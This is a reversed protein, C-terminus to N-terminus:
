KEIIDWVIGFPDKIYLSKEREVLISCGNEQLHRKAEELNEVNYSLIPSHPESKEVYLTFHGTNYVHLNTKAKVPKFGLTKEYFEIALELNDVGVSIDRNSTFMM